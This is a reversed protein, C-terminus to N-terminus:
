EKEGQKDRMANGIFNRLNKDAVKWIELKLDRELSNMFALCGGGDNAELLEQLKLMIDTMQHSMEAEPGSEPEIIAGTEHDFMLTKANPVSDVESEDMLGLGAISLTVRRKAKTEAKMIANSKSDGRLGALSVAGLSEDHRGNRDTARATVIYMDDVFERAIIEISVGRKSRLQETGDKTMYWILEGNNKKLLLFPKSLMNLDLSKCWESYISLREGDTLKTLDGGIMHREIATLTKSESM